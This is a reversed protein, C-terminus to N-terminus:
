NSTLPWSWTGRSLVGTGMSYSAANAGRTPQVNWLLCFNRVRSPIRAGPRGARLRNMIGVVNFGWMSNCTELGRDSDTVYAGLVVNKLFGGILSDDHEIRWVRFLVEASSPAWISREWIGAPRRSSCFFEQREGSCFRPGGALLWYSVSIDLGM